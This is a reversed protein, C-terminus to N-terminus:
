PAAGAMIKVGRKARSGRAPCLENFIDALRETLELRSFQGLREPPCQPLPQGARWDAHLQRLAASVAASHFTVATGTSCENIIRACECDKPGVVLIPKGAALYEFVKGSIITEANRGGPMPLLLVDASRMAAIAEPHSLYGDFKLDLPAARLQNLLWDGAHGAIRLTCREGIRAMEAAFCRLGDILQRHARVRDLRGTYVIRFSRQPSESPVAAAFDDPDFGNTITVFKHSEAPLHAALVQTQQPSVGVVVDAQELIEQQLRADAARNAPSPQRYRCDDIWLDRFDAVWPLGFRCKLHLAMRHNSAPSYTSWLIHPKEHQVLEVLPQLSRRAWATSPDTEENTRAALRWEVAQTVRRAASPIASGAFATLSRRAATLVSRVPQPTHVGVSEPLEKCLSYDIPLGPVLSATWVIPTWEFQPLYKAFKAPRQVGPGGTPPFAYAIMLVKHSQSDSHATRTKKAPRM